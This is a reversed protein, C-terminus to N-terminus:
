LGKNGALIPLKSAVIRNFIHFSYAALMPAV